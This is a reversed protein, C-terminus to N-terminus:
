LAGAGDTTRLVLTDPGAGGVAWIDGGLAGTVGSLSNYEGPNPSAVATWASGDWHETVTQYKVTIPNDTYGVAWIDTPSLASLGVLSTYPLSGNMAPVATWATGDWHLVLPDSGSSGSSEGVAWIDSPGTAALGYLESDARHGNPSAVISWTTGNWHEILTDGERGGVAWVDTSSLGVVGRLQSFGPGPNPSRALSWRAGDWHEILARGSENSTSNGFGVAWVDNSAVAAVGFLENANPGFNASPLITWRSGDWHMTMTKESGYVAINHYGVAWVDSSTLADVGYLENYGDTANPSRVQTWKAGDWHLTLTGPTGLPRYWAGVAWGDNPAITTVGSLYNGQASPSPSPVVTWTTSAGASLGLALALRLGTALHM